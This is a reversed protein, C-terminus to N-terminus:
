HTVTIALAPSFDSVAGNSTRKLRARFKWTGTVGTKFTGSPATTGKFAVFSGGPARKQVIYKFGSPATITAWHLTFTTSTTGSQASATMGVVIDGHMTSHVNCHYPFSGAATFAQSVTGDIALDKNWLNLPPNGTVTHHFGSQNVWKVTDGITASTQSPFAIQTMTITRTSASVSATSLLLLATTILGIRKLM